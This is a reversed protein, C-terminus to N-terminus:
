LAHSKQLLLNRYNVKGFGTGQVNGLPGIYDCNESCVLGLAALTNRLKAPLKFSPHPRTSMDVGFDTSNLDTGRISMQRFSEILSLTALRRESDQQMAAWDRPCRNKQDHLRLDGGTLMSLYFTVDNKIM